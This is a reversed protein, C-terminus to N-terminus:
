LFSRKLQHFPLQVHYILFPRVKMATYNDTDNRVLFTFM